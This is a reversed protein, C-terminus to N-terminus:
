FDSSTITVVGSGNQVRTSSVTTEKVLTIQVVENETELSAM